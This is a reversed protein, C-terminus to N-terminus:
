LDDRKTWGLLSKVVPTMKKQGESALSLDRRLIESLAFCSKASFSLM